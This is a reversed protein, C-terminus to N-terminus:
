PWTTNDIKPGTLVDLHIAGERSVSYIVPATLLHGCAYIRWAELIEETANTLLATRRDLPRTGKAAFDVVRFDTCGAPAVPGLADALRVVAQAQTRMGLKTPGPVLMTVFRPENPKVEVYSHLTRPDGCGTFTITYAWAGSRIQTEDAFRIPALVTPKAHLAFKASPCLHGALGMQNTAGVIMVHTLEPANAFREFQEINTVAATGSSRDPERATAGTGVLDNPAPQVCGLALFPLIAVTMAHRAARNM